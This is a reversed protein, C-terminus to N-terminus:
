RTFRVGSPHNSGHVESHCNLCGRVLLARNPTGFGPLGSADYVSSPHRSAMHCEQCLWPPRAILLSQNVSGHPTHCNTCSERVPQHEWLFPGRKEAHCQYCTQNLTDKVLLHDTTSGHPNHCDSCLISGELLPHRSRRFLEARIEPHCGFCRQTQNDKYIKEPRIDRALVVSETTHIQHCDTCAVDHTEHTSGSWHIRAGGQHCALCAQSKTRAAQDKGFAIAPKVDSDDVHAKSPGHCTECATAHAIPTRPDGRMGHPTKLIAMINPQDHCQTCTEIGGGAYDGSAPPASLVQVKQPVEGKQTEAAGAAPQAWAHPCLVVSVLIAALRSARIRM